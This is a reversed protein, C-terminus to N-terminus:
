GNQDFYRLEVKHGLEKSNWHELVNEHVKVACFHYQRYSRQPAYQFNMFWYM